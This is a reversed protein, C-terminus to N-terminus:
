PRHRITTHQAASALISNAPFNSADVLVHHTLAVLQIKKLRNMSCNTLPCPCSINYAYLLCQMMAILTEQGASPSYASMVLFTNYHHATPLLPANHKKKVPVSFSYLPGFGRFIQTTIYTITVVGRAGEGRVQIAYRLSTEHGIKTLLERADDTMEVDEEECRCL